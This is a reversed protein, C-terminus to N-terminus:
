PLRRAIVIVTPPFAARGSHLRLRALRIIADKVFRPLQRSGAAARPPRRPTREQASLGASFRPILQLSTARISYDGKQCSSEHSMRKEFPQAAPGHQAVAGHAGHQVCAARPQVLAEVRQVQFLGVPHALDM